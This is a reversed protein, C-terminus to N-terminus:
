KGDLYFSGLIIGIGLFFLIGAIAILKLQRKQFHRKSGQGSTLNIYNRFAFLDAAAAVVLFLIFGFINPILLFLLSGAFIFISGGNRYLMIVLMNGYSAGEKFKTFAAARLFGQAIIFVVFFKSVFIDFIWEGVKKNFNIEEPSPNYKPDFLINLSRSLELWLPIFENWNIIYNAILLYVGGAILCFSMPRSYTLDNQHYAAIVHAPQKILDILTRLVGKNLGLIGLIDFVSESIIEKFPKPEFNKPADELQDM